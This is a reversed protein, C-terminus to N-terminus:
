PCSLSSNVVYGFNSLRRSHPVKSYRGVCSSYSFTNTLYIPVIVAMRENTIGETTHGIYYIRDPSRSLTYEKLIETSAFSTYVGVVRSTETLGLSIPKLRAVRRDFWSTRATPM